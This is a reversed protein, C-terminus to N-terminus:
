TWDQFGSQMIQGIWSFRSLLALRQMEKCKVDPLQISLQYISCLVSFSLALSILVAQFIFFAGL